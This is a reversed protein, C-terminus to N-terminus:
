TKEQPTSAIQEALEQLIEERTREFGADDLIVFGGDAEEKVVFSDPVIDSLFKRAAGAAMESSMGESKFRHSLSLEAQRRATEIAKSVEAGQEARKIAGLHERLRQDERGRKKEGEPLPLSAGDERGSEGDAREASGVATKVVRSNTAKQLELLLDNIDEGNPLAVTVEDGGVLTFIKDKSYYRGCVEAVKARVERMRKTTSDGAKLSAEALSIKGADIDNLLREYELLLDVGLDMVDISVYVADPMKMAESHFIEPSACTADKQDVKLIAAVAQRDAQNLDKMKALDILRRTKDVKNKLTDDASGPLSNKGAIEDATLPKFLDLLNVRRIYQEVKKVAEEQGPAPEFKNKRIARVLDRNITRRGDVTQWVEFPLGNKDKIVGALEKGSAIINGIEAKIFKADYEGGYKKQEGHRLVQAMQQSEAVALAAPTYDGSKPSAGVKSAGFTAKFGWQGLKNKFSDLKKLKAEKAAPALSSNKLETEKTKITELIVKVMAQDLQRGLANMIDATKDPGGLEKIKEQNPKLIGSRFDQHLIELGHHEALSAMYNKRHDIIEDTLQQGFLEDNFYKVSFIGAPMSFYIATDGQRLESFIKQWSRSELSSAINASERDTLEAMEGGALKNIFEARALAGRTRELTASDVLETEVRRQYERTKKKDPSVLEVVAAGEDLGDIMLRDVANEVDAESIEIERGQPAIEPSQPYIEKEPLIAAAKNNTM